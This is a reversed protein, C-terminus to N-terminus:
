FLEREKFSAICSSLINIIDKDVINYDSKHALISESYYYEKFSAM